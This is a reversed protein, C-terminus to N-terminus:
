DVSKLADLMAIKRITQNVWLGLVLLIFVIVAIPLVFVSWTVQTGFRLNDSGIMAMIRQHLFQGSVLGLIIGILSLLVTERYIYRTIEHHYFGLVKITSLERMREALNITTLNSLIVVALLSSVIVLITMSSNLSHVIKTLTTILSTNQSLGAVASLRLLDAAQEKLDQESQNELRILHAPKSDLDTFIADFVSQRMMLYHGVAMEITDAIKVQFERGDTLAITLLDGRGVQYLEALQQSILVGDTPLSLKQGTDHRYLQILDNFDDGDSVLVSVQEQKQQAISVSLPAMRLSFAKDKQLNALTTALEAKAEDSATPEEIVLLDYPTLRQFQNTVVQSLSSQIGLGAFLLAVSGAVGFITMMMRQKYRFLNRATVKQTFSLRQWLIPVKELLVTSGNAPPKPLLLHATKESLERRAILYAPLGAAMIALCFAVLTYSWFFAYNTAPLSTDATMINAIVPPLLYHGALIGFFSGVVSALLGYIVFGQIVARNSYGLAKLIASNRREEDVFRTMTTITVFVAVLYLVVPFLNGIQAISNSGSDYVEYGEGGPLTSRTYTTYTPLALSDLKDQATQLQKRYHDLQEKMSTLEAQQQNIQQHLDGEQNAKALHLHAQKDALDKEQEKLESWSAALKLEPEKKLEALRKKPNDRLLHNLQNQRDNLQRKYPDLFPNLGRLEQYRFRAINPAPSDFALSDLVAYASLQGDGTHATGLNTKSLLEPSHIFGVVTFTTEKVIGTDMQEFRIKDGIQYNKELTSVLAIEQATKPLRGKVLQVRSITQPTSFVRLAQTTDAITLDNLYGWEIQTDELQNLEKKDADSLGKSAILSLDMTNQEELYAQASHQMNPGTVKLGVFAFAGLGMLLMISLFRGKSTYLRKLFMQWYRTQKM